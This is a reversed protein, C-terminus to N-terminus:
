RDAEWYNQHEAFNYNYEQAGQSSQIKDSAKNMLLLVGLLSLSLGIFM